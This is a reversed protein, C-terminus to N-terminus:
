FESENDEEIRLNYIKDAGQTKKYFINIRFTGNETYLTAIMFKSTSKEGQFKISFHKVKNRKFFDRILDTAENSSVEVETGNINLSIQESLHPRLIDADGNQFAEKVEDGSVQGYSIGVTFLFLITIFLQNYLINRSLNM